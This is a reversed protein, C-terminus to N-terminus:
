NCPEKTYEKEIEDIWGQVANFWRNKEKSSMGFPFGYKM